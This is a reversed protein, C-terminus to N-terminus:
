QKAVINGAITRRQKNSPNMDVGHYKDPKFLVFMGSKENIYVQENGDIFFFLSEDPVDVFYCFSWIVQKGTPSIHNHPEQFHDQDYKNLWMDVINKDFDVWNLLSTDKFYEVLRNQIAINGVTSPTKSKWKLKFKDNDFFTTIEDKLQNHEKFWLTKYFTM